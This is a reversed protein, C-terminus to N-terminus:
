RWCLRTATGIFSNLVLVEISPPWNRVHKTLRGLHMDIVLKRLSRLGQKWGQFMSECNLSVSGGLTLEHLNVLGNLGTLDCDMFCNLRLKVVRLGNVEVDRGVPFTAELEIRGSDLTLFEEAAQLTGEFM